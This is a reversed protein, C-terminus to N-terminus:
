DISVRVPLFKAEPADRWGQQRHLTPADVFETRVAEREGIDFDALKPCVIKM